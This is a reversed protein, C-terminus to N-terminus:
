FTFRRAAGCIGMDCALGIQQPFSAFAPSVDRIVIQIFALDERRNELHFLRSKLPTNYL